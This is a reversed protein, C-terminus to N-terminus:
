SMLSGDEFGEVVSLGPWIHHSIEDNQPSVGVGLQDVINAVDEAYRRAIADEGLERDPFRPAFDLLRHTSLIDVDDLGGARLVRALFDIIM